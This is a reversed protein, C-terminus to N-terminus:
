PSPATLPPLNLDASAALARAAGDLADLGAVIKLMREAAAVYARSSSLSSSL